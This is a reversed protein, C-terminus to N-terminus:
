LASSVLSPMTMSALISLKKPSDADAGSTAEADYGDLDVLPKLEGELNHRRRGATHAEFCDEVHGKRLEDIEPIFGLM